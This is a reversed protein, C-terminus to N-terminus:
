PAVGTSQPYTMAEWIGSQALRIRATEAYTPDIEWGIADRGIERAAVLTTGSGAFPDVIIDGPESWRDVLWRMHGIKRPCPHDAQKGGTTQDMHKGPVVRYGERSAPASGYLYACDHTYLLRGSYYPCAYEMTVHRFFPWRDAMAGLTAPDSNCGLIIAVREAGAFVALTEALLEAARECGQVPASAAPWPPDTIVVYKGSPMVADRCDGTHVTWTM